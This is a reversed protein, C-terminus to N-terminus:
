HNEEYFDVLAELVRGRSAGTEACLADIKDAYEQKVYFHVDAQKEKQKIELM